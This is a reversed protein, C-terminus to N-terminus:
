EDRSFSIAPAKFLVNSSNPTSTNTACSSMVGESSHTFAINSFKVLVWTNMTRSDSLKLFDSQVSWSVPIANTKFLYIIGIFICTSGYPNILCM